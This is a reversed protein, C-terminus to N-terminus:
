PWHTSNIATLSSYIFDVFNQQTIPCGQDACPGVINKYINTSLAPTDYQTAIQPNNFSCRAYQVISNPSECIAAAVCSTKSWIYTTTKTKNICDVQLSSCPWSMTYDPRHKGRDKALIGCEGANPPEERADLTVVSATVTSALSLLACLGASFKMILSELTLSSPSSPSEWFGQRQRIYHAALFLSQFKQGPSGSCRCGFATACARIRMAAFACQIHLSRQMSDCAHLASPIPLRLDSDRELRGTSEHVHLPRQFNKSFTAFAVRTRM